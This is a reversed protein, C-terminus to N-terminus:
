IARRGKGPAKIRGSEAPMGGVFGGSHSGRAELVFGTCAGTCDLCNACRECKPKHANSVYGCKERTRSRAEAAQSVM